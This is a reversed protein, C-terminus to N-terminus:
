RRLSGGVETARAIMDSASSTIAHALGAAETGDRGSMLRTLRFPRSKGGQETDQSVNDSM